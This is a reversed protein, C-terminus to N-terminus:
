DAVLWDDKNGTRSFPCPLKPSLGLIIGPKELGMGLAELELV